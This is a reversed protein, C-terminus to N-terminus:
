ERTRAARVSSLREVARDGLLNVLITSMPEIEQEDMLDFEWVFLVFHKLATNLHSEEKLERIRSFHSHYIHAFVRFLRRIINRVVSLFQTPYPNRDESPFLREDGIQSEIWTMLLHVYEPASVRTPTPYKAGDKWLYEYKPGANMVPCSERTCFETVSGYLMNVINYFDVTHVSLWHCKDAHQPLRVSKALDGSQVLSEAFRSLAHRETGEKHKKRPRFTKKSDFFTGELLKRM